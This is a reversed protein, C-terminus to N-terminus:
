EASFYIWTPREERHDNWEEVVALDSFLRGKLISDTEYADAYRVM